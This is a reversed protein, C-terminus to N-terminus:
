SDSPRGGATNSTINLGMILFEVEGNARPCHEMGKPVIFMEDKFLEINKQRLQITLHGKYLIFLEDQDDHKHWNIEGTGKALKILQGNAVGIIKQDSGSALKHHLQFELLAVNLNRHQVPLNQTNPTTYNEIFVFGYSKYYNIIKENSAWTDMRIYDLQKEAAHDSAWELVQKFVKTGKFRRNLVIRHLYLANGKEMDRWILEDRYCISFICIIGEDSIIKLLLENEIDAQLYARDYNNWGIYNNMQQFLIAEEFLQCITNLDNEEAKVILYDAMTNNSKM